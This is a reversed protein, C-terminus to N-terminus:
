LGGFQGLSHQEYNAGQNLESKCLIVCANSFTMENASLGGREMGGNIDPLHPVMFARDDLCRMGLLSCLNDYCRLVPSLM